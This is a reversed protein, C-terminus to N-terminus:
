KDKKMQICIAIATLIAGALAAAALLYMVGADMGSMKEQAVYLPMLVTLLLLLIILVILRKTSFNNVMYSIINERKLPKWNKIEPLKYFFLLRFLVQALIMLAVFIILADTWGLSFLRMSGLSLVVCLPIMSQYLAYSKVDRSTLVFARKTFIDYYVTGRKPDQYIFLGSLDSAKMATRKRTMLEVKIVIM